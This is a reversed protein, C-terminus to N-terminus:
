AEVDEGGESMSVEPDPAQATDRRAISAQVDVRVADVTQAGFRVKEPRIVITKGIWATVEKGWVEAIMHANTKNLVWAKEKGKLKVVPKREKGGNRMQLEYRPDIDEIVVPVSMGRLDAAKLYKGPFLLDVHNYKKLSATM